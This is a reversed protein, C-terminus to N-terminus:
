SMTRSSLGWIPNPASLESGPAQKLNQTKREREAGGRSMSETELIFLYTFFKLFCTLGPTLRTYFLKRYRHRLRRTRLQFLIFVTFSVKQLNLSM